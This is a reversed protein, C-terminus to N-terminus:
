NFVEQIYDNVFYLCFIVYEVFYVLMFDFNFFVKGFQINVVLNLDFDVWCKGGFIVGMVVLDCFYVNVSEEVDEVYFKM